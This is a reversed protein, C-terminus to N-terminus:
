ANSPYVKFVARDDTPDGFGTVNFVAEGLYDKPNRGKFLARRQMGGAILDACELLVERGKVATEVPQVAFQNPFEMAVLENLHKNLKELHMSDFGADSEKIVRLVRPENLSGVRKLHRLSDIVLQAFLSFMAERTSGRGRFAYGLFLLGSRRQELQTLLGLARGTRDSGVEVFHIPEPGQTERWQRIAAAHMEYQRWNMACVGAVGTYAKEGENGTEDFYFRVEPVVDKHAALYAQLDKQYLMRYQATSELGRFLHLTNQIERRVRDITGLNDLEYLFDLNGLNWKELIDANFRQLYRICLAIASERTEPYQELIACVKSDASGFESRAVRALLQQRQKNVPDELAPQWAPAFSPEAFGPSATSPFLSDPFGDERQPPIFPAAAAPPAVSEAPMEPSQERTLSKSRLRLILEWVEHRPLQISAHQKFESYVREFAQTYPLHTVAVEENKLLDALVNMQVDTPELGSLKVAKLM